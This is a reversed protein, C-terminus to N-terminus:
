RTAFVLNPLDHPQFVELPQMESGDSWRGLFRQQPTNGFIYEAHKGRRTYDMLADAFKWYCNFDVENLRSTRFVRKATYNRVGNDFDLDYCYPESHTALVWREGNNSRRQLVLNRQPTNVATKFVLGGFESGVVYDDEGVVITLKLDAPLGSYDTLRAGLLPGSGPECLLMSVPKPVGYEQWSVGLNTAIVGGYSHGIYAIKDVRPYPFDGKKLAELANKIGIAANAPFADARPWVVNRQYRPYIVINGKAVLHKIWKGYAMPNYAGYGHLFVVVDASDPKPDNPVFLWYGDAKKAADYFSLSEHVYEAGGPGTLPQGAYPTGQATAFLGKFVLPPIPSLFRALRSLTSNGDASRKKPASLTTTADLNM